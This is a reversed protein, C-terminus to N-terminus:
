HYSKCNYAFGNPVGVNTNKDIKDNVFQLKERPLFIHPISPFYSVCIGLRSPPFFNLWLSSFGNQMDCNQKPGNLWQLVWSFLRKQHWNRERSSFRLPNLSFKLYFFGAWFLLPLFNLRLIDEWLPFLRSRQGVAKLNMLSPRHTFCCFEM